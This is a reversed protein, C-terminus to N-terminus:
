STHRRGVEQATTYKHKRTELGLLGCGCFNPFYSRKMSIDSRSLGGSRQEVFTSLSFFVSM